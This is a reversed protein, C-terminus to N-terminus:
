CSDLASNSQVAFCNLVEMKGPSILRYKDFYWVAFENRSNAHLEYMYSVILTIEMMLNTFLPTILVTRLESHCLISCEFPSTSYHTQSCMSSM